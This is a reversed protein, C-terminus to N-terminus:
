RPFMFVSKEKVEGGDSSILFHIENSGPKGANYPAQLRVPVWLSDAAGVDVKGDPTDVILELGPIGEASLKFSHEKEQANMVQLRYVNEVKNGPVLRAL